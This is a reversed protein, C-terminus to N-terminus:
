TVAFNAYVLFVAHCKCSSTNQNGTTQQNGTEFQGCVSARSHLTVVIQDFCFLSVEVLCFPIWQFHFTEYKFARTLWQLPSFCLLHLYVVWHAMTKNGLLWGILWDSGLQRDMCAGMWIFLIYIYIFGSQFELGGACPWCLRSLRSSAVSLVERTCVTGTNM